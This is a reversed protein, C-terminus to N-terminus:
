LTDLLTADKAVFVFVGESVNSDPIRPPHIV